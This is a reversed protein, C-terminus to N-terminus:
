MIGVTARSPTLTTGSDPLKSGSSIKPRNLWQFFIDSNAAGVMILRSTSAGPPQSGALTRVMTHPPAGIYTSSM